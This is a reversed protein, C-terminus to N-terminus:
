MENRLLRPLIIIIISFFSHSHTHNKFNDKETYNFASYTEDCNLILELINGPNEENLMSLFIDMNDIKVAQVYSFSLALMLLFKKM